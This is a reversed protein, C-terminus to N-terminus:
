GAEDLRRRQAAVWQHPHLPLPTGNLIAHEWALVLRDVAPTRRDGLAARASARSWPRGGRIRESSRPTAALAKEWAARDLTPKRDVTPWTGNMRALARAAAAVMEEDDSSLADLLHPTAQVEGSWGLAIAAEPTGLGARLVIPLVAEGARMCAFALAEPGRALSAAERPFWQRDLVPTLAVAGLLENADLAEASARLWQLVADGGGTGVGAAGLACVWAPTAESPVRPRVSELWQPTLWQALTLGRLAASAGAPDRDFLRHLLPEGTFRPCLSLSGVVALGLDDSASAAKLLRDVDSRETQRSGLLLAAASAEEPEGELAELALPRAITWSWSLADFHSLIRTEFAEVDIWSSDAVLRANRVVLLSALREMDREALSTHVDDIAGLRIGPDSADLATSEILATKQLAAVALSAMPAGQRTTIISDAGWVFAAARRAGDPASVLAGQAPAFGLEFAAAAWILALAGYAAGTEGLHSALHWSEMRERPSKLFRVRAHAEDEFLSRAGNVANICMGVAAEPRGADLMASRMARSMGLGVLPAAATGDAPETAEGVGLIAAAPRGWPGLGNSRGVRVFAAAEGPFFGDYEEAILGQACLGRLTEPIVLSDVGGVICARVGSELASSAERLAAFVATRGGAVVRVSRAPLGLKAELSAPVSYALDAPLGPREPPPLGLIVLVGDAEEPPVTALCERLAKAALAGFRAAGLIGEAYGRVPAARLDLGLAGAFPIKVLGDLGGRLSAVTRVADHGLATIAGQGQIFLPGM